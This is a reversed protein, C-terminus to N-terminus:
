GKQFINTLMPIKGMIPTFIFVNSVVVWFNVPCCDVSGFFGEMPAQRAVAHGVAPNLSVAWTLTAKSRAFDHLHDDWLM